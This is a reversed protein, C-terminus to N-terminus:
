DIGFVTAGKTSDQAPHLLETLAIGSLILLAGAVRRVELREHLLMFATLWAFVPELALILATNTAPLIQQAWIQVTFAAATALIGTVLLAMLLRMTPHLFPHEAIGTGAGLLLAAVGVMLLAIQQFPVRPAAHALVIVHFSFGVACGVTLLDGRNLSHALRAWDTHAPTTLLAIGGFAVLAGTWSNWGPARSAPPRLAPIATLLPVLVVMLGTIFASNTASTYLLGSTQFIYGFTMCVGALLGFGLATWGMRKWQRRYVVALCAFAVLMRLTNFLQPSIDRLADKVQVFTTGWLAVVALMLLHARANRSLSFRQTDTARVADGGRM